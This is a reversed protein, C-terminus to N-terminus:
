RNIREKSRFEIKHRKTHHNACRVDCKDIEEKLRTLGMSRICRAIGDVKTTPDRHDFELMDPDDEDCDVCTNASLFSNVYDQKKRSWAM